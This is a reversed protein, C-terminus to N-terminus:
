DRYGYCPKDSWARMMQSEPLCKGMTADIMSNATDASLYLVDNRRRDSFKQAYLAGAVPINGSFMPDVLLVSRSAGRVVHAAHLQQAYPVAQERKEKKRKNHGLQGVLPRAPKATSGVTASEFEGLGMCMDLVGLRKGDMQPPLLYRASDIGSSRCVEAESARARKQMVADNAGEGQRYVGRSRNSDESGSRLLM